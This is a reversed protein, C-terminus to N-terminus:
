FEVNMGLFFRRGLPDYTGLPFQGFDVGFNSGARLPPLPMPTADPNGGQLPPRTNLLNDIGGRLLLRDNFRYSASLNFMNASELTGRFATDPNLAATAHDITPVHGWRLTARFSGLLYNFTSFMQYDYGSCQLQLACGMTGKWDIKPDAPSNQTKQSRPVTILM